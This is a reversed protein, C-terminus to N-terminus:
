ASRQALIKDVVAVIGELAQPVDLGLAQGALLVMKDVREILPAGAGIARAFSSPRTLAKAASAYYDFPVLDAPDAGTKVVVGTVWDYLRRSQNLDAHVAEAISVIRGDAHLCRCNGAILMPWKALPVHLANHALIRVPLPAGDQRYASVDQAIAELRQQHEPRAFPAVKFNSALTVALEFPRSPDPRIAQADPSAASILSPDLIDWVTWSAYAARLQDVDVSGLRRLFPPPLANMLSIVPLGALAIRRMLAAVEPAGYHPEAMALFVMDFSSPDVEVGTVGLIGDTSFGGTAPVHLRRDIVGSRRLFSISAGNRLIDKQEAERCVVTVCHGALLMRVAPLLGYSAGLVLIHLSSM